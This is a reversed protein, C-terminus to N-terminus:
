AVDDPGSQNIPAMHRGPRGALCRIISRVQRKADAFGRGTDVVFHARRRKEEDPMQQALVSAFKEESMGPRALVREKQIFASASVVIVADCREEGGTELLLPIDLVALAARKALAKQLFEQEMRRVLPHVVSELLRLKEPDNLVEAGLLKRDVVGAVIAAPFLAAIPQVATTRYLLHVAGDADHVPIGLDRFLGATATKGMGISGTLGLVLM